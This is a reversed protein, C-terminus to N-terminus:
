LQPGPINKPIIESVPAEIRDRSVDTIRNQLSISQRQEDTVAHSMEIMEFMMRNKIQEIIEEQKTNYIVHFEEFNPKYFSGRNDIYFELDNAKALSVFNAFNDQPIAIHGLGTGGKKIDSLLNCKAYRSRIDNIVAAIIPEDIEKYYVNRFKWTSVQLHSLAEFSHKTFEELKIADFEESTVYKPTGPADNSTNRLKHDVISVDDVAYNVYPYCDKMFVKFLEYEHEQMELKQVDGNGHMLTNLSVIQDKRTLFGLGKSFFGADNQFRDSRFYELWEKSQKGNVNEKQFFKKLDKQYQMRVTNSLNVDHIKENVTILMNLENLRLKKPVPTQFEGYLVEVAEAGKCFEKMEQILLLLNSNDSSLEKAWLDTYFIGKSRGNRRIIEAPDISDPLTNNLLRPDTGAVVYVKNLDSDKFPSPNHYFIGGYLGFKHCIARIESNNDRYYPLTNTIDEQM